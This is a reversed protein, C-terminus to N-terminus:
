PDVMEKCFINHQYYNFCITLILIFLIILIIVIIVIIVIILIILNVLYTKAKVM